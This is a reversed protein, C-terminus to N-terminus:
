GSREVVLIQEARQVALGVEDVGPEPMLSIVTLDSGLEAAIEDAALAEDGALFIQTTLLEAGDRTVKLHLHRPRDEYPAPVITRFSFAGAQDTLTEGYSQFYADRTDAPPDDPHLYIGQVDAQWLEITADAVPQGDVDVLLQGDLLLPEGSAIAPSGTLLLLDADQDSPRQAEGPYYPGEPLSPTANLLDPAPEPESPAPAPASPPEVPTSEVPPAAPSPAEPPAQESEGTTTLQETEPGASDSSTDCASLVVLLTLAALVLRM